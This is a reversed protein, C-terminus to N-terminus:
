ATCCLPFQLIKGFRGKYRIVPVTHHIIYFVHIYTITCIHINTNSYIQILTPTYKRNRFSDGGLYKKRAVETKFKTVEM